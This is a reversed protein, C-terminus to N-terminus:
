HRTMNIGARWWTLVHCGCFASSMMFECGWIIVWGLYIREIAVCKESKRLSIPSVKRLCPDAGNIGTNKAGSSARELAEPCVTLKSLTFSNNTIRCFFGDVLFFLIFLDIQGHICGHWIDRGNRRWCYFTHEREFCFDIRLHKMVMNSQCPPYPMRKQHEHNPIQVGSRRKGYLLM